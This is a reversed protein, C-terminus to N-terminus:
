SLLSNKRALKMQCQLWLRRIIGTNDELRKNWEELIPNEVSERIFHPTEQLIQQFFDYQMKGTETKIKYFREKLENMIEKVQEMDEKYHIKWIDYLELERDIKDTMLQFTTYSELSKLCEMFGSIRNIESNSYAYQYSYGVAEEGLMLGDTVIRWFLKTDPYVYVMNTWLETRYAMDEELIFDATKALDDMTVYPNFMILFGYVSIGAEKFLRIVEKNNETSAKKGFVELTNQSGSEFGVSVSYLGLKRMRKILPRDAEGWSEARTLFSFATKLNLSELGDLIEILRLKDKPRPDEISGDVFNIIMKKDPFLKSLNKIEMVIHQADRGRWKPIGNYKSVRHEVCFECSGMCGRSTSLTIYVCPEKEKTLQVILDTAAEEMNCLDPYEGPENRFVLGNKRYFIGKIQSIETGQEMVECLHIYTKEGEGYIVYDLENYELLLRAGYLSATHGGTIIIVDPAQRKLETFIQCIENQIEKYFPIGVITPNEKLIKEAVKEVPIGEYLNLHVTHGAGRLESTIYQLGLSGWKYLSKIPRWEALSIVITRM